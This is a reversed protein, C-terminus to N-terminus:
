VQFKAPPVTTDPEPAPGYVTLQAVAPVLFMLRVTAAAPQVALLLTFTTTFWIGLEDNETLLVWNQAPPFAVMDYLATGTVPATYVQFKLPPVITDPLPRPGYVTFQLVAPTLVIVKLTVALPQVEVIVEIGTVM